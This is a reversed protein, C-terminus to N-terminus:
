PDTAAGEGGKNKSSCSRVPFAIRQMSHNLHIAKYYPERDKQSLSKTHHVNGKVSGHEERAVGAQHSATKTMLDVSSDRKTEKREEKVFQPEASPARNKTRQM